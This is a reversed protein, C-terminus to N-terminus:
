LLLIFFFSTELKQDKVYLFFFPSRVELDNYEIRHEPKSCVVGLRSERISPSANPSSGPNSNRGPVNETRAKTSHGALFEPM